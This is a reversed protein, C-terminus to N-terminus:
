RDRIARLILRLYGLKPFHWRRFRAIQALRIYYYITERFTLRRKESLGHSFRADHIVFHAYPYKLSYSGYTAALLCFLFSDACIPIMPDYGGAECFASFRYLAASPPGFQMGYRMVEDQMELPSFYKESARPQVVTEEEKKHLRYASFLCAAQPHCRMVDRVRAIYDSELWDGCFLPKVWKANTQYHAWNWHEIRGLEHPPRILRAPIGAKSFAELAEAIFENGTTSHNDSIMVSFCQDQQELISKISNRLVSTPNRLPMIWEITENNM